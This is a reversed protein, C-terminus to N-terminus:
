ESKKKNEVFTIIKRKIEKELSRKEVFGIWIVARGDKDYSFDIKYRVGIYSKFYSVESASRLPFLEDLFHQLQESFQDFSLTFNKPEFIIMLSEKAYHDLSLDVKTIPNMWIQYNPVM